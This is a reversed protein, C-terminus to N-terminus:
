RVIRSVEMLLLRVVPDRYECDVLRVLLMALLNYIAALPNRIEHAIGAYFRAMIALHEVKRQKRELANVASLDTVVVLAGSIRKEDDHLVATSLIVYLIGRVAHDITVEVERPHWGGSVALVLAWGVESPLVHMLAGRYEDS